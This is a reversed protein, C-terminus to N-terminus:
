IGVPDWELKLREVKRAVMDKERGGEGTESVHESTTIPSVSEHPGKM